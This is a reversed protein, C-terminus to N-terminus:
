RRPARAAGPRTTRRHLSLGERGRWTLLLAGEAAFRDFLAEVVAEEGPWPYAFIVGFEDPDRELAAHGDAGGPKLWAFESVEDTFAEGGHPVYTGCAFAADLGFDAALSEAQQVLEPEIEIGWARFGLMSALGAVVGFGSRWECLTREPALHGAAIARLAGYVRLSDSPVFAPLAGAGRDHVFTEIREGAEKLFARVPAPPVPRAPTELPVPVLLREM